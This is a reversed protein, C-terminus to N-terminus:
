RVPTVYRVPTTYLVTTTHLLQLPMARLSQQACVRGRGGGEGGGEGAERGERSRKPNVPLQQDRNGPNAPVNM